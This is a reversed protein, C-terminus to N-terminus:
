GERIRDKLNESFRCVVKRYPPRKVVNGTKPDRGYAEGLIKTEFTALNNIRVKDGEVLVEALVEGFADVFDRCEELTYGTRRSLRSAFDRRKM